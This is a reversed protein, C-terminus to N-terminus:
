FFFASASIPNEKMNNKVMHNKTAKPHSVKSVRFRIFVHLPNKKM